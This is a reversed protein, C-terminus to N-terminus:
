SAADTGDRDKNIKGFLEELRAAETLSEDLFFRISPIAKIQHRIRAALHGRIRSSLDTLRELIAKREEDDDGLVSIYVSAISLDNTVRVGTVTVLSTLQDSYETLLIEAMERQLMKSVRDTRISM